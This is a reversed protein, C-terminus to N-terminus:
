CLVIKFYVIQLIYMFPYLRILRLTCMIRPTVTESNIAHKDRLIDEHREIYRCIHVNPKDRCKWSGMENDILLAEESDSQEWTNRQINYPIRSFYEM